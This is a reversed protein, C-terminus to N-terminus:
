VTKAMFTEESALVKKLETLRANVIQHIKARLEEGQIKKNIKNIENALYVDGLTGRIWEEFDLRKFHFDVSRVDITRIKQCFDALDAALEGSYQGINTCFYFANNYPVSGLIKSALRPDIRSEAKEKAGMFEWECERM